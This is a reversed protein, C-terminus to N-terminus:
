RGSAEPHAKLWKALKDRVPVYADGVKVDVSRFLPVLAQRKESLSLDADEVADEFLFQIEEDVYTTRLGIWHLLGKGPKKVDARLKALRELGDRWKEDDFAALAAAAFPLLPKALKYSTADGLEKQVTKTADKIGKSTFQAKEEIATVQGDPRILWSNPCLEVFPVVPLEDDRGNDTEVAIDLHERCTLGPYLPCRRNDKGTIKADEIEDHGLENHAILVVLNENAWKIFGKNTLM